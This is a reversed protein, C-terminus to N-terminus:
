KNTNDKQLVITSKFLDGDIHIKFEGNMLEILSQVISLGLGSGETHRSADGRVFRQMLEEETINLQELSTNKIEISISDSSDKVDIYVRTDNKSYKSVNSFLNRLVRWLLRGDAKAIVQYEPISEIVELQKEDMRDKYEALAQELIENVSVTEINVTINGSTAKSAEVVDETLKKLRQSQRQIVEIYESQKTPDEEKSLLDVYNIISTLPTKIDHSVNTILEAKMRESKLENQIAKQMGEGISNLNKGHQFFPGNLKDLKDQPIRADLNGNALNEAAELLVKSDANMKIVTVLGILEAGLLILLIIKTLGDGYTEAYSWSFGLQFCGLILLAIIVKKYTKSSEHYLYKFNDLAKKVPHYIWLAIKVCVNNKIITGAKIRKVITILYIYIVLAILIVLAIIGFLWGIINLQDAIWFLEAVVSGLAYIACVLIPLVVVLLVDLPIKDLWSLHIVEEDKKHGAASIEYILLTIVAIACLITLTLAHSQFPKCFEYFHYYRALNSDDQIITDTVGVTLIYKYESKSSEVDISHILKENNEKEDIGFEEVKEYKSEDKIDDYTTKYSSTKSDWEELKFWYNVGYNSTYYDLMEDTDEISYMIQRYETSIDSNIAETCTNTDFFTENDTKYCDFGYKVISVGGFFLGLTGFVILLLVGVAKCANSEKLKKM